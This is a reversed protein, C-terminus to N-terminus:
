TLPPDTKTVDPPRSFSYFTAQIQMNASAAAIVDLGRKMERNISISNQHTQIFTLAVKTKQREGATGVKKSCLTLM